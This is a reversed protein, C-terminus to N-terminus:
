ITFICVRTFKEAFICNQFNPKNGLKTAFFIQKRKKTFSPFAYHKLKAVEQVLCM